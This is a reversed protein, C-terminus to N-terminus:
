PQRAGTWSAHRFAFGRSISLAAVRDASRRVSKGFSLAFNRPGKSFRASSRERAGNSALRVRAAHPLTVSSGRSASARLPLCAFIAPRRGDRPARKCERAGGSRGRGGDVALITANSRKAGSLTRRSGRASNDPRFSTWRPPLDGGGQLRSTPLSSGLDM